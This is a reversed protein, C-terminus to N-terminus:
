KAGTLSPDAVIASRVDKLHQVCESSIQEQFDHFPALGVGGNALNYLRVGAKLEGKAFIAITESVAQETSKVVSSVLVSSASPVTIYQDVDIGITRVNSKAATELGGLGSRGAVCFLVDAGDTIMKHAVIAGSAPDGFDPISQYLVRINPKIRKAGNMFGKRIRQIVPIEPGAIVAITNSESICAALVGGLYASEDEAFILSSVNILGGAESYCDAVDEPCGQGPIYQHDISVFHVDPHKLAAKMTAHSFQTGATFVINAGLAILSEISESSVSPSEATEFHLRLGLNKATKKAGLLIFENFSKDEEGGRDLVVGVVLQPDSAAEEKVQPTCGLLVLLVLFMARWLM